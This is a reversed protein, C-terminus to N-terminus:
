KLISLIFLVGLQYYFIAFVAICSLKLWVSKQHLFVMAPALLTIGRYLSVNIGISFPIYWMVLVYIMLLVAIKSKSKYMAAALFPMLIFGVINQLDIWAIPQPWHERLMKFHIGLHKFPSYLLHGYKSQVMYMANWYGTTFYDYLYLTILGFFAPLLVFRLIKNVDSSLNFVQKLRENFKLAINDQPKRLFLYLTYVGFCFLLIVASSYTLPLLFAAVATYWKTQNLMSYFIITLLLVLLSLPFISFFYFGGPFIGCLLLTLLNKFRFDQINLMKAVLFLFCIFFFHTLLIGIVPNPLGSLQHIIYILLPYFPAWGANGCWKDSGEEYNNEVGCHYLTHGKESIELYLGSDQRSWCVEWWGHCNGALAIYQAFGFAALYVVIPLIWFALTHKRFWNSM